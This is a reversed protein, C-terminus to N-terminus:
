ECNFLSVIIKVLEALLILAVFYIIPESLLFTPLNNMFWVMFEQTIQLM